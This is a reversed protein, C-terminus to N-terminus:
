APLSLLVKFDCLMTSTFGWENKNESNCKAHICTPSATVLVTKGSSLCIKWKPICHGRMRLVAPLM